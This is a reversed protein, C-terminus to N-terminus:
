LLEYVVIDGTRQYEAREQLITMYLCLPAVITCLTHKPIDSEQTVETLHNNHDGEVGRIRSLEVGAARASMAIDNHQAYDWYGISFFLSM